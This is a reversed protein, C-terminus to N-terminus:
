LPPPFMFELLNCDKLHPLYIGKLNFSALLLTVEDKEQLTREEKKGTKGEQKRRTTHKIKTKTQSLIDPQRWVYLM